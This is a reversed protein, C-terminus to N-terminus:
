GTGGLAQGASDGSCCLLIEYNEIGKRVLTSINDLGIDRNVEDRNIGHGSLFHGHLM